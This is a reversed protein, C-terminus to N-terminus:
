PRPRTTFAWIGTGVGAVILGVGLWAWVREGTMFSSGGLIGLGQGIWIFGVVILAGAIFWSSRVPV